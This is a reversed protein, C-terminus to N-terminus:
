GVREVPRLKVPKPMKLRVRSRFRDERKDDDDDDSYLWDDVQRAVAVVLLITWPWWRNSFIGVGFAALRTWDLAEWLRRARLAGLRRMLPRSIYRGKWRKAKPTLFQASVSSFFALVIILTQLSM